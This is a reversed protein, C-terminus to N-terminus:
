SAGGAANAPMLSSPARQSRKAMALAIATFGIALALRIALHLGFVQEFQIGALVVLGGSAFLLLLAEYNYRIRYHKQGLLFVLASITVYGVITSLAAGMLEFRPILVSNAVLNAVLGLGSTMAILGTRNEFFLPQNCAIFITLLLNGVTVVRMVNVADGYSAPAAIRVCEPALLILGVAAATVICFYLTATKGYKERSAPDSGTRFFSPFWASRMAMSFVSVATSLVYAVEYIAIRERPVRFWTMLLRDSSALAWLFIMHPVIPACHGSFRRWDFTSFDPKAKGTVTFAVGCCWTATSIAEAWVAGAVGLKFVVVAAIIMATTCTFQLFTFTRYKVAEERAMLTSEFVNLGARFYGSCIAVAALSFPIGFDNRSLVFWALSILLVLVPLAFVARWWFVTSAFVNGSEANQEHECYFRRVGFGSGLSMCTWSAIGVAILIAMLGMDGGSFTHAYFPILLFRSGKTLLDGIAYIASKYLFRRTPQPSNTM